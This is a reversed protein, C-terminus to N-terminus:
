LLCHTGEGTISFMGRGVVFLIDRGRHYVVYRERCCHTGEGTISLM